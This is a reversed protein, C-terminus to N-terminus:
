GIGEPPLLPKVRSVMPRDQFVALLMLLLLLLLLFLLLGL